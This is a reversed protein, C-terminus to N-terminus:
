RPLVGHLFTEAVLEADHTMETNTETRWHSVARIMGVLMRALEEARKPAIRQVQEEIASTMSIMVASSKQQSFKAYKGDLTSVVRIYQRKEEFTAFLDTLYARLWQEFPLHAHAKAAAEIKPVMENRRKQFWRALLADRDPFYNYLTGVAVGAREAIAAISTSDIGREAAVQEAAELIADSAAERQREKVDTRRISRASM